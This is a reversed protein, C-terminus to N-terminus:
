HAQSQTLGHFRHSPNQSIQPEPKTFDTALSNDNVTQFEAGCEIHKADTNIQPIQAEDTFDTALSNDNVTRFEAGCEIHKADTNIQSIQPENTFDTALSNDNVTRFEAGCEFTSPM